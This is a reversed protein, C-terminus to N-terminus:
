GVSGVRIADTLAIWGQPVSEGAAKKKQTEPSTARNWWGAKGM